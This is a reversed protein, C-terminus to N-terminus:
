QIPVGYATLKEPPPAEGLFERYCNPLHGMDLAQYGAKFLDYALVTAMPGAAIFFLTGKKKQLAERLIRDYDNFADVPEIDIYEVSKMNGFLRSDNVFKGNRAVVFVVDRDNWVAKIKELPFKQFIITRSVMPDAYTKDAIKSRVFQWYQMWNWQYYGYRRIKQPLNKQLLFNKRFFLSLSKWATTWSRDIFHEEYPPIGVLCREEDPMSLIDLLKQRLVPNCRTAPQHYGCCLRIEGDGFRAISSGQIMRDLTEELSLVKPFEKAVSKSVWDGVAPIYLL